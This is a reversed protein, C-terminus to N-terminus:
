YVMWPKKLLTLSRRSKAGFIKVNYFGWRSKKFWYITLPVHNEAEHHINETLFFLNKNYQLVIENVVVTEQRFILFFFFM